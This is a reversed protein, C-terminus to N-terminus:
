GKNPATETSQQGLFRSWVPLCVHLRAATWSGRVQQQLTQVSLSALLRQQGCAPPDSRRNPAAECTPPVQEQLGAILLARVTAEVGGARSVCTRWVCCSNSGNSCCNLKGMQGPYLRLVDSASWSADLTTILLLWSALQLTRSTIKRRGKPGQAEQTASRRWNTRRLKSAILRVPYRHGHLPVLRVM